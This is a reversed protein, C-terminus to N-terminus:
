TVRINHDLLNKIIKIKELNIEFLGIRQLHSKRYPSLAMLFEIPVEYGEMKVMQIAQSLVDVNYLIFMNAVLHCCKIMKQQEMRENTRLKDGGISIWDVFDHFEEVKCTEANVAKRMEFDDICDLLYLTRCVRGLELFAYYLKNRKSKTCIKKVFDVINVKGEKITMVVRLMHRYYKQIIAWKISKRFLPDLNNYTIKNDPKYFILKKIGKIRPMLKIGLLYCIGFVILNQAHTDGHIYEPQIASKNQYVSDIMHIAEQMGSMFHGFLAIYTSSIYSYSLGGLEKYRAHYAAMLNNDYTTRHTSDVVAHKKDGWFNPLEYLNYKNIVMRNAANLKEETIHYANIWGIQKRNINKISKAVEAADLNCGYCFLTAILHELFFDLKTQYGSAPGFFDGLNLAQTVRTVVEIVSVQEIKEAIKAELKEINLLPEEAQIKKLVLKGKKFSANENAHFRQDVDWYKDTLKKQLQEVFSKSQKPINLIKTYHDVMSRCQSWSVLRKFHNSFRDARAIFLDGATLEQTIKTLIYLEFPLLEIEQSGVGKTKGIIIQQWRVPSAKIGECITEAKPSAQKLNNEYCSKIFTIAQTIFTDRYPSRLKLNFLLSLLTKRKPAYVALLFPLYNGAKYANFETCKTLFDETNGAIYPAIANIKDLKKSFSAFAKVVNHLVEILEDAYDLRAIKYDILKQKAADHMQRMHKILMEILDDLGRANMYRITVAVLACRKIKPLRKIRSFNLSIAENFMREMKIIPIDVFTKLDVDISQLWQMHAMFEQLKNITPKEPEKKLKHWVTKKGSEYVLIKNKVFRSFQYHQM